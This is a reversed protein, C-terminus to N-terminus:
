AIRARMPRVRRSSRCRRTAAAISCALSGATRAPSARGGGGRPRTARRARPARRAGPQRRAPVREVDAGVLVGRGPDLPDVREDGVLDVGTVPGLQRQQAAVRRPGLAVPRPRRPLARPRRAPGPSRRASAAPGLRRPSSSTATPRRSRCRGAPRGRARRGSPAPWRWAARRRCATGAHAHAAHQRRHEDGSRNSAARRAPRRPAPWRRPRRRRRASRRPGAPGAGPATAARRGRRACPRPARRQRRPAACRCRGARASPRRQEGHGVQELQAPDVLVPRHEVLEAGPGGRQVHRHVLDVGVEDLGAVPQGGAVVGLGLSEGVQGQRHPSGGVADVGLDDVGADPEPM